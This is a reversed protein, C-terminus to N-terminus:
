MGNGPYQPNVRKYLIYDSSFYPKIRYEIFPSSYIATISYEETTVVYKSTLKTVTMNASKQGLTLDGFTVSQASSTFSFFNTSILIIVLFSSILGFRLRKKFPFSMGPSYHLRM